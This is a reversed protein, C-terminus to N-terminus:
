YPRLVPHTGSVQARETFEIGTGSVENLDIRGGITSSSDNPLIGHSVALPYTGTNLHSYDKRLDPPLVLQHHDASKGVQTLRFSILGGPRLSGQGFVPVHTGCKFERGVLISVSYTPITPVEPSRSIILGVPSYNTVGLVLPCFRPELTFLM